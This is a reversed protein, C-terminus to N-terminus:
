KEDQKKKSSMNADVIEFLKDVKHEFLLRTLPKYKKIKLGSQKADEKEDIDRESRESM